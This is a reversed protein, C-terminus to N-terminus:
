KRPAAIEALWATLTPFCILRRPSHFDVPGLQAVDELVQGLQDLKVLDVGKRLLVRFDEM